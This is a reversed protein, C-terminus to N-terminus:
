KKCESILDCTLYYTIPAQGSAALVLFFQDFNKFLQWLNNTFILIYEISKFYTIIYVNLNLGLVLRFKIVHRVRPGEGRM